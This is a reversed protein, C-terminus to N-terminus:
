GDGWKLKNRLVDYYSRDPFRILQARHESACIEVTDGPNMEIGIQGDLTAVAKTHSTLAVEISVQSPALFPRHSLTHPCIPNILLVDLSPDLIPGGASLSYATSGTPTAIILGDGRINTMFTKNISIQTSIMRALHGKAIVVDNLVTAESMRKGEHYIGVQLMLRQDLHYDKAFVKELSGYIDDITTETLFGLGGMNVGLIPLSRQEVLRAAGLMTGDGGLVILLDAENAIRTRSTPDSDPLTEGLHLDLLVEKGRDKLWKVLQTLDYEINSLQPKSLIGITNM